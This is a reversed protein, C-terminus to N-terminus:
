RPGILGTQQGIYALVFFLCAAAALLLVRKMVAESGEARCM